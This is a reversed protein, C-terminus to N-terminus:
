KKQAEQARKLAEKETLIIIANLEKNHKRIQELYATVVEKSTIEKSQIAKALQSATQYVISKMILTRRKKNAVKSIVKPWIEASTL